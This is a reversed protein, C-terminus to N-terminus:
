LIEPMTGNANYETSQLLIKLLENELEKEELLTALDDVREDM